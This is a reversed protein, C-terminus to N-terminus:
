AQLAQQLVDRDVNGGSVIIGTRGLDQPLKHHLVAAVAVAGSPETLMKMRLLLFRMTDRIEEDSVTVLDDLMRQVIPWTIQGPTQARLGDAITAPPPISVREGKQRSLWFDNGDAPEVGFVRIAPRL